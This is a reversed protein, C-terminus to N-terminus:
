QKAYKEKIGKKKNIYLAVVFFYSSLRNIFPITADSVWDNEKKLSVIEREVRRCITRIIHAVSSEKSGGPLIFGKLEPLDSSISEIYTELKDTFDKEFGIKGGSSVHSLLNYLFRQIEILQSKLESFNSDLLSELFGVWSQLEDLSGIVNFLKADKFIRKGVCPLYTRGDDGTGTYFRMIKIVGYFYFGVGSFTYVVGIM